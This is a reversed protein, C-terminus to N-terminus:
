NNIIKNKLLHFNNNLSADIIKNRYYAIFGSVIGNEEIIETPSLPEAEVLKKIKNIIDESIRVPSIIRLTEIKEKRKMEIEFYRMVSPLLYNLHMKKCFVIFNKTTKQYEDPNESIMEVLAKALKQASYSM